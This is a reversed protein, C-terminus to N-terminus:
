NECELVLFLAEGVKNKEKFFKKQDNLVCTLDYTKWLVIIQEKDKTYYKRILTMFKNPLGYHIVRHHGFLNSDSKRSHSKNKQRGLQEM